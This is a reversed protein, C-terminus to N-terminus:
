KIGLLEHVKKTARKIQGQRTKSTLQVTNPNAQIQQLSQTQKEAFRQLAQRSTYSTGGVRISELKVGKLGKQIWRYIASIHIAKGTKRKPLYKPVQNLPILQESHLDIM